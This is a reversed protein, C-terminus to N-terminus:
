PEARVQSLVWAAALRSRDEGILTAHAPMQGTRGGTVTEAITAGDGGYLWTDDTLNPAGLLSNGRGEAGHCAACLAQFHASGAAALATDVPQGSLSQVYAVTATVGADGLVPGFPPMAAQRGNLVTALVTDPEGGWQWDQDVLNPFGRAGRADSGHCTSCNNAFVSRGLGVAEANAALNAVPEGRFRALVPELKAQAAAVDEAHKQRSSWNGVGAFAGLGPYWLLYAFAFVITIYFLNIWWRPMPKNGEVLDGDWVHGTTEGEPKGDRKRRTWWLLWLCALINAVTLVAVYWSWGTSM